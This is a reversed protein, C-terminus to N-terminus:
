EAPLRSGLRGLPHRVLRPVENVVPGLRVSHLAPDDLAMLRQSAQAVAGSVPAKGILVRGSKGAVSYRVYLLANKWREYAITETLAYNRRAHVGRASCTRAVRSRVRECAIKFGRPAFGLASRLGTRAYREAAARTLVPALQRPGPCYDRNGCALLVKV